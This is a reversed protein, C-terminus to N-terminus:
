SEVKKKMKEALRKAFDAQSLRSQEYGAKSWLAMRDLMGVFLVEADAGIQQLYRRPVLIRGQADIELWEADSVFQMLLMQDDPNWEDLKERFDGVKRNWVDEPYLIICANDPDMRMVLRRGCGDDPLLKRYTSPVFFRGKADLRAESNGIFTSM